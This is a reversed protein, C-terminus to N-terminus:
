DNSWFDGETKFDEVHRMCVYVSLPLAALHAEKIKEIAKEIISVDLVDKPHRLHTANKDVEIESKRQKIDNRISLKIEHHNNCGDMSPHKVIDVEAVPTNISGGQSNMKKHFLTLRIWGGNQYCEGLWYDSTIEIM